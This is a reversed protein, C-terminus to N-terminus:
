GGALSAAVAATRLDWIEQSKPGGLDVLLEGTWDPLYRVFAMGHTDGGNPTLIHDTVEHTDIDMVITDWGNMNSIWIENVDPDPHLACHDVSSASGGLYIPMQHLERSQRFRDTDVVGLVSGHNHSSEGKGVVYLKSEDWNLCLGYPGAVGASTKDVILNTENDIKYVESNHGEAVYTFKGDATHAFGIPRGGVGLGWIIEADLYGGRARERDYVDAVDIKMVGALGHDNGYYTQDISQYYFTNTPDLTPYTHGILPVDEGTIARWVRNDDNPDLFFQPGRNVTVIVRDNGDADTYAAHHHVFSSGPYALAKDLKLTRANIVLLLLQREEDVTVASGVYAWKGDPSVGAGHPTRTMDGLDYLASAVVEKTYADIVHIGPLMEEDESLPNAGVGESTFYVLPSTAVDWADPGSSDYQAYLSIGGRVAEATEWGSGLPVPEPAPGREGAQIISVPAMASLQSRAAELDAQAQALAAKAEELEEDSAGVSSPAVTTAVTTPVTPAVTTTAARTTATTASTTDASDDSCAAAVLALVVAAVWISRRAQM